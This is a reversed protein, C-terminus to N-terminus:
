VKTVNLFELVLTAKGSGKAVAPTDTGGLVIGVQAAAATGTAANTAWTGALAASVDYTGLAELQAETLTVGNTAETGKAGVEVVPTTGTVVFVEDVRLHGGLFRAGKPVVVKPMFGGVADNISQGTLDIRLTHKSGSTSEVGVAGGTDRVGYHNHVNLGATNEFGM